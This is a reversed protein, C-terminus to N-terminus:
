TTSKSSPRALSPLGAVPRGYLGALEPDITSRSSLALGLWTDIELSGTVSKHQWRYPPMLGDSMGECLSGAGEHADGTCDAAELFPLWIRTNVAEVLANSLRHELTILIADIQNAITDGLREFADIRSGWAWRLWKELLEVAQDFPFQFVLRPEGESPLGPLAPRNIQELWALKRQQRETLNEQNRWVAYRTRKLQRAHAQKGRHRADNWVERRVEDLAKTAWAM